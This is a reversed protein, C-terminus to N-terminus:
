ESIRAGLKYGVFVVRPDNKQKAFAGSFASSESFVYNTCPDRSRRAAFLNGFVVSPYLYFIHDVSNNRFKISPKRKEFGCNIHIIFAIGLLKIKCAVSCWRNMM